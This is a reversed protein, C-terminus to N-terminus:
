DLTICYSRLPSESLELRVLRCQLPTLQQRIAIALVETFNELTPNVQNFPPVDNLLQGQYPAVSTTIAAELTNFQVLHQNPHQIECILEWTHPHAEGVGKEWRVAHSANIYSKLKYTKKLM